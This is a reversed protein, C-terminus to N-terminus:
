IDVGRAGPLLRHSDRCTLVHRWLSGSWAEIHSSRGWLGMGYTTSGWAQLLGYGHRLATHGTKGTQRSFM